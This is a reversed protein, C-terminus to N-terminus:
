AAPLTGRLAGLLRESAPEDRVTVRLRKPEGLADGPAVIVGARALAGAAEGGTLTPHAVWLFNSESGPVDLGLARLADALRERETALEACRRAVLETACRLSEMAGAQALEDLGLEPELARLLEGSGPAGLAYGCRLGALGWAKSFSRFVLLRPATALLDVGVSQAQPSAFDILAEDLLVAVHEPLAGLLEALAREDLLQGTPDNPSAVAVARTHENVAALITETDHGAVPVPRAGAQRALLPFLSYGPWPIVLEQGPRTLARVAAGLLSAAGPGIAIQDPACGHRHALESRLQPSGDHPYHQLGRRAAYTVANVVDPHPLSPWTTRSLDLPPLRALAQARRERAAARKPANVEEESLGEFQRYYDLLGV